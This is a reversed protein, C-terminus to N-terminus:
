IKNKKRKFNEATNLDSVSAFIYRKHDLVFSNKLWKKNIFVYAAFIILAIGSAIAGFKLGPTFYNFRINSTQKAPVRIAM